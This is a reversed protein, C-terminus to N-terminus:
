MTFSFLFLVWTQRRFFPVSPSIKAPDDKEYLKWQTGWCTLSTQSDLVEIETNILPRLSPIKHGKGGNGASSIGWVTKVPYYIRGYAKYGMFPIRHLEPIPFRVEKALFPPEQQGGMMKRLVSSPARACAPTDSAWFHTWIWGGASTRSKKKKLNFM